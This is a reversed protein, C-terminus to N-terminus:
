PTPEERQQTAEPHAALWEAVWEATIASVQSTEPTDGQRIALAWREAPRSSDPELEPIETYHCGRLRAFTGVLCACAGEYVSGNIEGARLATLLGAVEHPSTALVAEVDARIPALDAGRLDAGRLYAGRLYAGGLYADGLDAGGLYAGGLDAGGLDAGRLDAGGLDAGGLYADGLYADGLDAGGLYAGGLDAGGLDADGLYADGLYAGRLYAGRLDAGGLYAGYFDREGAAYRTLLDVASTVRRYTTENTPERESM